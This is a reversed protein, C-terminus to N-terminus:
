NCKANIWSKRMWRSTIRTNNVKLVNYHEADRNSVLIVDGVKAFIKSTNTTTVEFETKVTLKIM